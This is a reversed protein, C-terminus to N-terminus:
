NRKEIEFPTIPRKAFQFVEPAVVKMWQTLFGENRSGSSSSNGGQQSSDVMFASISLQSQTFAAQANMPQLFSKGISKMLVIVLM